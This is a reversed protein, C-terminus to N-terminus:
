ARPFPDNGKPFPANPEVNRRTPTVPCMSNVAKVSAEDVCGLEYLSHVYPEYCPCTALIRIYTIFLTLPIGNKKKLLAFENHQLLVFSV